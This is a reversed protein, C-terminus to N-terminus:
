LVELLLVKYLLDKGSLPHNADLTVADDTVNTIIADQPHGRRSTMRVKKGVRPQLEAPLLTRRVVKVLKQERPGYVEDGSVSVSNMEGERMGIITGDLGPIGKGEGLTLQVPERAYTSELVTGDSFSAQYHIRVTSGAKAQAKSM